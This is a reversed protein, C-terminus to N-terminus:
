DLRCLLDRVRSVMHHARQRIVCSPGVSPFSWAVSYDGCDSLEILTAHCKLRCHHQARPSLLNSGHLLVSRPKPSFPLLPHKARWSADKDSMHLQSWAPTMCPRQMSACGLLKLSM